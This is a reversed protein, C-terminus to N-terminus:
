TCEITSWMAHLCSECSLLGACNMDLSYVLMTMGALACDNVVASHLQDQSPPAQGGGIGQVTYCSFLVERDQGKLGSFESPHFKHEVLLIQTMVLRVAEFTESALMCAIGVFSLNVEGLSALATGFTVLALATVLRVSLTELGAVFLVLMTVIPTFAKLCPLPNHTLVILIFSCWLCPRWHASFTHTLHQLPDAHDCHQHLRSPCLRKSSASFSLLAHSGATPPAHSFSHEIHSPGSFWQQLVNTPCGRYTNRYIQPKVLPFM